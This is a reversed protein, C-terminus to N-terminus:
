INEKKLKKLMVKFIEIPLRICIELMEVYKRQNLLTTIANYHCIFVQRLLQWRAKTGGVIEALHESHFYAIELSCKYRKEANFSISDARLIYKELPIPIFVLHNNRALKLWLDYDQASPLNINFGGVDMLASKKVVMCSTSLFCGRYLQQFLAKRNDYYKHLLKLKENGAIDVEYEDHTFISIDPYQSIAKRIMNIKEPLWIDDGDLFAIWESQAVEIGRNRAAGPGSNKQRVLRIFNDPSKNIYEEIVSISNDTSGDDVIIVEDPLVTQNLVSDITTGIYHELNYVPIVVSISTDKM